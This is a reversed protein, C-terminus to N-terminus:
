NKIKRYKRNSFSSYSRNNPFSLDQGLLFVPNCGFRVLADLALCSVSGGSRTSGKDNIMADDEKITSPGKKFVIYKEGQYCHLIKSNATQTFILKAPSELDEQFYHFSEEQPDLSFVYQPCIGERSLIPLATDVCGFIVSERLQKLYPLIDDLSPGASVLVGPKGKHKSTLYKIGTSQQIIEKNFSYNENEYYM